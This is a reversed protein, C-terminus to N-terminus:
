YGPLCVDADACNFAFGETRCGTGFLVDFLVSAFMEVSCAICTCIVGGRGGGEWVCVCMCVHAFYLIVMCAHVCAFLHLSV